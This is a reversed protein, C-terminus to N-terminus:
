KALLSAASCYNAHSGSGSWVVNTTGYNPLAGPWAQNTNNTIWVPTTSLGLDSM